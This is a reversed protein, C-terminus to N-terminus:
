VIVRDTHLRVPQPTMETKATDDKRIPTMILWLQCTSRFHDGPVVVAALFHISPM